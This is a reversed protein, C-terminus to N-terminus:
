WLRLSIECVADFLKLLSSSPNALAEQIPQSQRQSTNKNSRRQTLLHIAYILTTLLVTDFDLGVVPNIESLITIKIGHPKFHTIFMENLVQELSQGYHVSHNFHGKNFLESDQGFYIVEGM